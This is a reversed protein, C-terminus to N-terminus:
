VSYRVLPEVRSVREAPTKVPISWNGSRRTQWSPGTGRFFEVVDPDLRVWVPQKPADPKPRGRPRWPQPRAIEERSLERTDPGDAIGANVRRDEASNPRILNRRKM